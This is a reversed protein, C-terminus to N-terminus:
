LLMRFGNMVYIIYMAYIVDLVCWMLAIRDNRWGNRKEINDIAKLTDSKLIMNYNPNNKSYVFKIDQMVSLEDNFIKENHKVDIEFIDALEYPVHNIEHVHSIVCNVTFRGRNIKKIDCESTQVCLIQPEDFILNNDKKAHIARKMQIIIAIAAVCLFMRAVSISTKDIKEFCNIQITCFGFFITMTLNALGKNYWISKIM